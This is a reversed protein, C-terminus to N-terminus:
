SHYTENFVLVCPDLALQGFGPDIGFVVVCAVVRNTTINLTASQPTVEGIKLPGDLIPEIPQATLVGPPTRTTEPAADLTTAPAVAALATRASEASQSTACAFFAPALLVTVLFPGFRTWNM